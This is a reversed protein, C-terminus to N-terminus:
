ALHATSSKLEKWERSRRHIKGMALKKESQFNIAFSEGERLCDTITPVIICSLFLGSVSLVVGEYCNQKTLTM